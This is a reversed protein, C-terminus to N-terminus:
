QLGLDRQLKAVHGSARVNYQALEITGVGQDDVKIFFTSRLVGEIPKGYLVKTGWAHYAELTEKSEDSLLTITLNRREHFAALREPSDPSIGIIDIGAELFDDRAATFDIAQTTCGPTMAAPFFYVIVKRGAFDSLSVTKEKADSLAFNPAIDGAALKSMLVVSTSMM